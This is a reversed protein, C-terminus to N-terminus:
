DVFPQPEVIRPRAGPEMAEDELAHLGIALRRGPEAERVPGEDLRLGSRATRTTVSSKGQKTTGSWVSANARCAGTGTMATSPLVMTGRARSWPPSGATVAAAWRRGRM